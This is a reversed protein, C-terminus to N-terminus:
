VTVTTLSLAVELGSASAASTITIEIRRSVTTGDVEIVTGLATQALTTNVAFTSGIPAGDVSIQITCTGAGLKYAIGDIRIKQRYIRAVFVTANTVSGSNYYSLSQASYTQPLQATPLKGSSDLSAVGNAAGMYTKPVLNSFDINGYELATGSANVRVYKLSDSAVFNPLTSDPSTLLWQTGDYFKLKNPTTSTDQWFDGTAPSAPTSSAVTIKAKAALAPALGSVKAQPIQDDAIALKSYQILGNADTYEDELMLGGVNTIASNEVTLITVLEGASLTTTFTITDSSPSTTYDYAGGERQLIGNRYVLLRETPEHVFPFVAQGSASTIDSRRYNTVQQTRISYISVKDDLALGSLFTVQNTVSNVTYVGSSAQLVGNVYVIVDDTDSDFTYSFVTQGATATYEKRNYFLPGEVTGINSGAPGRIESIDVISIWGDDDNAYTGVRYQLGESADLRMEIPGAFEGDGDFLINLLEGVTKNGLEAANLYRIINEFETSINSSSSYNQIHQQRLRPM